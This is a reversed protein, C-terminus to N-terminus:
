YSDYELNRTSFSSTISMADPAASNAETDNSQVKLTINVLRIKNLRDPIDDLTGYIEDPGISPDETVTGDELTYTFQMDKIGYVLPQEIIQQTASGLSNNGFFTRVLTGDNKVKYSVWFFKKLTVPVKYNACGSTEGENCKRLLSTLYLQNVGLPDGNGFRIKNGSVSTAMIVVQTTDAQAIFLDYPRVNAVNAAVGTLELSNNNPAADSISLSQGGNFDLDRFAFSVTDTQITNAGNTLSIANNGVIISSLLDRDAGIDATLSLRNSIVNDPVLAGYVHYGLGANLADRGILHMAARANKSVDSKRSARNRDTRSVELLGYIAGTVTIFILMSALLEILSFGQQNKYKSSLSQNKM